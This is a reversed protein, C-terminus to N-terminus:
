ERRDIYDMLEAIKPMNLMGSGYSLANVRGLLMNINHERFDDTSMGEIEAVECKTTSYGVNAAVGDSPYGSVQDSDYVFSRVNNESGGEVLADMGANRIRYSPLLVIWKGMGLLDKDDGNPDMTSMVRGNDLYFFHMADIIRKPGSNFVDFGSDGALMPMVVSLDKTLNDLELVSMVDWQNYIIYELPKNATMYQHWEIGKYKSDVDGEFKLKGLKKGLEKSLVNDLSYGGPIAKGGVRIYYYACMADIWWFSSTATVVHWRQEVNIASGKATKDRGQKYKFTKLPGKISPDCMVEEPSINNATLVDLMKPLDYDINWVGVIDPSWEHLRKMVVLIAELENEVLMYERKCRESLDTKPAHKEFLYNLKSAIELSKGEITDKTSMHGIYDDTFVTLIKDPMAISIITITEKLTDAEIDLICVEYPTAVNKFKQKYLHNIYTRSNVDIGYIYPSRKITRLDRVGAFRSGLRCAAERALDSQTAKGEVLKDLTEYEKKQKHNRAHDQTVWFPRKFNEIIRLNKETRGDAYHLLEKVVHTDENVGYRAPVHVVFRCERSVVKDM